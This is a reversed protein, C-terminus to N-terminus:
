EEGDKKEFMKLNVSQTIEVHNVNGDFASIVIKGYFGPKLAREKIYQWLQDENQVIMM